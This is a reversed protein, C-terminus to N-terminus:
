SAVHSLYRRGIVFRNSSTTPAAIRAAQEPEVVVVVVVTVVVVGVVTVVVVGVVSAVGAVLVV